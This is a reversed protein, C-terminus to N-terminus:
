KSAGQQVLLHKVAERLAPTIADIIDFTELTTQEFLYEDNKIHPVVPPNPLPMWAYVNYLYIPEVRMSEDIPNLIFDKSARDFMCIAYEETANMAFVIQNDEPFSSNDNSGYKCITWKLVTKEPEPKLEPKPKNENSIHDIYDAISQKKLNESGIAGASSKSYGASIAAATANGNNTLYADCFQKQKISLKESV